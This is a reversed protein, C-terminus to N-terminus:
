REATSPAEGTPEKGRLGTAGLYAGALGALTVLYHALNLGAGLSYFPVVFLALLLGTGRDRWERDSGKRAIWLSGAVALFVFGFAAAGAVGLEALLQAPFQDLSRFRRLREFWRPDWPYDEYVPSDTVLSVVGGFRGPGAGWVPHDSWVQLGKALAYARYGVGPVSEAPDGEGTAQRVLDGLPLQGAISGSMALTFGLSLLLPGFLWRRTRVLPVILFVVAAHVMRSVSLALGAYLVGPRWGARSLRASEMLFFLLLYLGLANPHGFFAPTRYLGLRRGGPLDAVQWVIEQGIATLAGVVAVALLIRYVSRLWRKRGCFTAFVFLYFIGKLYDFAGLATPLVPVGNVRASILLIASFVFVTLWVGGERPFLPERRRLRQLTAVPILCVLTVEDM